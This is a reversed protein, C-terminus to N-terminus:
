PVQVFKVADGIVYTTSGGVPALTADDNLVVRASVGASLTYSESGLQNWRGGGPGEITQDVTFSALESWASGGDRSVEITYSVNKSRITLPNALTSGDDWWAYVEYNATEPITPTWIVMGTGAPDREKYRFNEEFAQDTTFYAWETSADCPPSCDPSVTADANDVYTANPDVVNLTVEGSGTNADLDTATVVFDYEADTTGAAVNLTYSYTGDGNATM